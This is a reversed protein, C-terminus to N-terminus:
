DYLGEEEWQFSLASAMLPLHVPPQLVDGPCHEVADLIDDEDMPKAPLPKMEQTPTRWARRVAAFGELGVGPLQRAPQGAAQADAAAPPTGVPVTTTPSAATSDSCSATSM